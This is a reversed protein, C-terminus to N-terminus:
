RGLGHTNELAQSPFKPCVTESLEKKKKKKVADSFGVHKRGVSVSVSEKLTRFIAGPGLSYSSSSFLDRDKFVCFQMPFCAHLCCHSSLSTSFYLCLCSPFCHLHCPVLETKPVVPTQPSKKHSSCDGYNNLMIRCRGRTFWQAQAGKLIQNDKTCLELERWEERSPCRLLCFDLM